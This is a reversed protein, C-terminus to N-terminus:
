LAADRAGMVMDNFDGYGAQPWAIRVDRGERLWRQGANRVAREGAGNPDKDALITVTRVASPLVLTKLGSTTLAAWTPVECCEMAALCTEIGEGVLLFSGDAPALRVAGGAVPGLMARAPELPAKASGDPLLFTRHIAIFDGDVNDVRAIMAPCSTRNPHPCPCSSLWRLTRPVPIDIGRTRLWREVPSGRGEKARDWIARAWATKQRRQEADDESTVEGPRFEGSLLGLRKLENLIEARTCGAHCVVILARDGDRLALTAQRSGHAPCRCRWWNGARFGHLAKAIEAATL